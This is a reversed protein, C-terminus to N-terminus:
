LRGGNKKSSKIQTPTGRDEPRLTLVEEGEIVCAETHEKDFKPFVIEYVEKCRELEGVTVLARVNDVSLLKGASKKALKGMSSEASGKVEVGFNNEKVLNTVLKLVVIM